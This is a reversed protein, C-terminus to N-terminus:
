SFTSNSITATLTNDIAGGNAVLAYPSQGIAKNNTFTCSSVALTGGLNSVAGGGGGVIENGVSTCNNTFVANALSLSSFDNLIAGGEFAEKGHTFTLGAISVSAGGAIHFMRSADNGSLTLNAAGPGQITLDKNVLLEGGTLTITKGSLNGGFQITDGS